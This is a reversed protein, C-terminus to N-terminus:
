GEALLALAGLRLALTCVAVRLPWSLELRTGAHLVSEFVLCLVSPKRPFTVKLGVKLFLVVTILYPIHPLSPM